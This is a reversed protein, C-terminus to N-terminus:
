NHSLRRLCFCNNCSYNYKRLASRDLLKGKMLADTYGGIIKSVLLGPPFLMRIGSPSLTGSPHICRVFKRGDDFACTQELLFRGRIELFHANIRILDFLAAIQAAFLGM